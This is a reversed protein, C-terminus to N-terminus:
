SATQCRECDVMADRDDKPQEVDRVYVLYCEKVLKKKVHYVTRAVMRTRTIPIRRTSTRPELRNEIEYDRVGLLNMHTVPQVIRVPESLEPRYVCQMKVVPRYIYRVDPRWVLHADNRPAYPNMFFRPRVPPASGYGGHGGCGSCGGSSGGGYYPTFRMCAGRRACQNCCNGNGCMNEYGGYDVAVCEMSTVPFWVRVMRPDRREAVPVMETVPRPEIRHVTHAVPRPVLRTETHYVYDTYMEPVYVVEAVHEHVVRTRYRKEPHYSAAKVPSDEDCVESASTGGREVQEEGNKCEPCESRAHRHKGLGAGLLPSTSLIALVAIATLNAIRANSSLQTLM